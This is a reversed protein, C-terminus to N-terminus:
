SSAEKGTQMSRAARSRLCPRSDGNAASPKSPARTAGLSIPRSRTCTTPTSGSKLGHLQTKKNTVQESPSSSVTSPSSAVSSGESISGNRSPNRGLPNPGDVVATGGAIGHAAKYSELDREVRLCKLRLSDRTNSLAINKKKLALVEEKLQANQKIKLKLWMNQASDVNMKSLRSLENETLANKKIMAAVEVQLQSEIQLRAQESEALEEHLKAMDLLTEERSIDAKVYAERYKDNDAQVEKIWGETEHARTAMRRVEDELKAIENAADENKSLGRIIKEQYEYEDQLAKITADKGISEAELCDVQARLHRIHDELETIKDHLVSHDAQTKKSVTEQENLSASLTAASQASAAVEAVLEAYKSKSISCESTHYALIGIIAGSHQRWTEHPAGQGIEETSGSKEFTEKFAAEMAQCHAELEQIREASIKRETEREFNSKELQSQLSSIRDKQTTVEEDLAAEKAKWARENKQAKKAQKTAALVKNELEQIRKKDQAERERTESTILEIDDELSKISLDKVHVENKLASSEAKLTETDKNLMTLQTSVHQNEQELERLKKMTETARREGEDRQVIVVDRHSKVQKLESQIADISNMLQSVEGRKHELLAKLEKIEISSEQKQVFAEVSLKQYKAEWAEHEQKSIAKLEEYQQEVTAIFVSMDQLQLQSQHCENQLRAREQQVKLLANRNQGLETILHAISSELDQRAKLHDQREKTFLQQQKNYDRTMTEVAEAHQARQEDLMRETAQHRALLEKYGNQSANLSDEITQKEHRLRDETEKTVSATQLREQDMRQIAETAHGLQAQLQEKEMKMRARLEQVTKQEEQLRQELEKFTKELQEFRIRWGDSDEKSAKMKEQYRQEAQQYRENAQTSEHEATERQETLQQQWQQRELDFKQQTETNSAEQEALLLKVRALQKELEDIKKQLHAGKGIKEHVAAAAKESRELSAKLTAQRATLDAIESDKAVLQTQISNKEKIAGQYMTEAKKQKETM